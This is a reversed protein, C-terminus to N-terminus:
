RLIPAERDGNCPTAFPEMALHRDVFRITRRKSYPRTGSTHFLTAQGIPCYILPYIRQVSRSAALTISM